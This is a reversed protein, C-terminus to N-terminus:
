SLQPRWWQQGITDRMCFLTLLSDHPCVIAVLPLDLPDHLASVFRRPVREVGVARQWCGPQDSAALPPGSVPLRMPPTLMEWDAMAVTAAAAWWWRGRHWGLGRKGGSGNEGGDGDGRGAVAM